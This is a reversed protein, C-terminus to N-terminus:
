KPSHGRRTPQMYVGALEAQDIIHGEMAKKIEEFDVGPELKLLTDLAYLMFYYHHTFGVPPCPGDYGFNDFSNVGQESGDSFRDNRSVGEQLTHVGEPINFYIWHIFDGSPVDHDVCILAFSRTGEPPSSWNLQPSQNAGAPGCAFKDPIPQNNSFSPSTLSFSNNAHNNTQNTSNEAALTKAFLALMLFLLTKM